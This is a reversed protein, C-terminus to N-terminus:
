SCIKEFAHNLWWSSFSHKWSGRNNEKCFDEAVFFQPDGQHCDGSGVEQAGIEGQIGKQPDHRDKWFFEFSL